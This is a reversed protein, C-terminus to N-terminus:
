RREENLSLWEQEKDSWWKMEVMNMENKLFRIMAEDAGEVNNLSDREIARYASSSLQQQSTTGKM